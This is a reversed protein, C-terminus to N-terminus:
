RQLSKDYLYYGLGHFQNLDGISPICTLILSLKLVKEM